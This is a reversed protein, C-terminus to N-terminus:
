FSNTLSEYNAKTKKLWAQFNTHDPGQKPTDEFEKIYRLFELKGDRLGAEVNQTTFWVRSKENLSPYRAILEEVLSTDATRGLAYAQEKLDNV